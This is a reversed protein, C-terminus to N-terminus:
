ALFDLLLRNVTEPQELSPLHAAGPITELRADPIREALVEAIALMDPVDHAGVVVLTPALVAELRELAPPEMWTAVAADGVPLQLEFSRLVMRRVLERVEPDVTGAPRGRDLWLRLNAEAAAELDGRELAAEEEDWGAEVEESFEWGAVAADLLALREVLDPSALALDLAIRGGFSSGVVAAPGELLGRVDDVHSYPGAELPREGYGRLDPALVRHGAAELAARQPEWM